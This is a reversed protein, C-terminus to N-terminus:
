DQTDNRTKKKSVCDRKNPGQAERILNPERALLGWPGTQRKRTSPGCAHALLGLKRIHTNSILSLDEHIHPMCM